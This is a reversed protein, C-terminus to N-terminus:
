AAVAAGVLEAYLAHYAAAMPETGFQLSRRHALGGLRRALPPDVLIREIAAALAGPDGPDVFVAAGDWLERLSPIGGVVLACHDRAAELIALGFPEYRAPAAFVAARRRQAALSAADLVGLARCRGVDAGGTDGALRLPADPLRTAAAVLARVNKAEDWLRGAALAFPLKIPRADVEASARVGRCDVGNAIVLRRAPLPGYADALEDLTARTPAVVATARRLGADVHRRYRDWGSPPDTGHVARWWSWVDSHAVVVV